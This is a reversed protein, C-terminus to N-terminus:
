LRISDVLRLAELQKTSPTTDIDFPAEDKPANRRRCTNRVLTALESLLTHFSHAPSGDALQKSAIKGLAEDSRTAPAVPDRESHRQRDEDSFLLGRWAEGMHWKVYYALMCLFLHARVRDETRHRIPRIQLDNGKLSRFALEVQSLDKYHRVAEDRDLQEAAVSTRIVYLGDLAAEQRVKDQDIHFSFHGASIDLAVHKAMRYKNLVRGTRVGIKGEDKLRGSDVM